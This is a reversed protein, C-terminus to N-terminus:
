WLVVWGALAWWCGWLDRQIAGWGGWAPSVEATWSVTAPPGQAKQRGPSGSPGWWQPEPSGQRHHTAGPVPIRFPVKHSTPDSTALGVSRTHGPGAQRATHPGTCLLHSGQQCGTQNPLSAQRLREEQGLASTQYSTPCFYPSSIGLHMHELPGPAGWTDPVDTTRCGWGHGVVRSKGEQGAGTDQM